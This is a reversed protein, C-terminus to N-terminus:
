ICLVIPSSEISINVWVHSLEAAAIAECSPSLRQEFASDSHLFRFSPPPRHCNLISHWRLCPITHVLGLAGLLIIGIIM